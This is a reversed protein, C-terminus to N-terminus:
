NSALSGYCIVPSCSLPDAQLTFSRMAEPFVYLCARERGKVDEIWRTCVCGSLTCALFGVHVTVCLIRVCMYSFVPVCFICVFTHACLAAVGFTCVCAHARLAAVGFTCVCAHARLAAVGSHMCMCPCVACCCWFRMCMCPCAACCCWYRM